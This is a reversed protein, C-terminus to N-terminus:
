SDSEDRTGGRRLPGSGTTSTGLVGTIIFGTCLIQYFYLPEKLLVLGVVMSIATSLNGFITAKVAEMHALMYAMLLSSVLTSPIGLFATALLFAPEKMPLFYNGMTGNKLGLFLTALNFVICGGVSIAFAITYPTYVGRVHRMFVNSIAMSLSSLFLILLGPLSVGSFNQASLVIMAIVSTVSLGVFANQKWNGTEGLVFHAILKTLIPVIAFIIGSEISTAFLLGIAQLVMFGLYFGATLLLKQKSKGKWGIPVLGVAIPILAALAAFNFRYTLTALPSALRVGTKVGLFSFGVILSFLLASAYVTIRSPNSKM